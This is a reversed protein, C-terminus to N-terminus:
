MVKKKKLALCSNIASAVRNVCYYLDVDANNGLHLSMPGSGWSMQFAVRHYFLWVSVHYEALKNFFIRYM